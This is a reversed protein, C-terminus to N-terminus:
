FNLHCAVKFRFLHNFVLVLLGFSMSRLVFDQLRRQEREKEKEEDSEDTKEVRRGGKRKTPSMPRKWSYQTENAVSQEEEKEEDTEVRRRKKRKTPSM